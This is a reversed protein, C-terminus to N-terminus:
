VAIIYGNGKSWVTGYYEIELIIESLVSLVDWSDCVM